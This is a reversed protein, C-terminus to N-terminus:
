AFSNLFDICYRPTRGRKLMPQWVAKHDAWETELIQMNRKRAWELAEKAKREELQEGRRLTTELHKPVMASIQAAQDKDEQSMMTGDQIAM